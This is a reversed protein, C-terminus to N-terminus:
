RIEQQVPYPINNNVHLAFALLYISISTAIKEQRAPPSGHPAQKSKNVLEANVLILGKNDAMLKQESKRLMNRNFYSM